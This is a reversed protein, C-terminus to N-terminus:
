QTMDKKLRNLARVEVETLNMKSSRAELLTETIGGKLAMAQGQPLHSSVQKVATVYDDYPVEKNAVAFGSGKELLKRETVSM